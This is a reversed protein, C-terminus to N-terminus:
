AIVVHEVKKKEVADEAFHMRELMQSIAMRIVDSRTLNMRRAYEELAWLMACPLRFSLMYMKEGDNVLVTETALREQKCNDPPAPEEWMTEKQKKRGDVEACFADLINLLEEAQQRTLVYLGASFRYGRLLRSLCRVYHRRWAYSGSIELVRNLKVSIVGGRAGALASELYAKLDRCCRMWIEPKM